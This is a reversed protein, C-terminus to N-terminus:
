YHLHYSDAKSNVKRKLKEIESDEAYRSHYHSNQAYEYHSHSSRSYTSHNHYSEAYQHVHYSDAYAHSHGAEAYNPKIKDASSIEIISYLLFIIASIQLLHLAGSIYLLNKNKLMAGVGEVYEDGSNSKHYKSESQNYSSSDNESEIYEKFKYGCECKETLPPNEASCFPCIM